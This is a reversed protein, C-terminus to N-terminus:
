KKVAFTKEIIALADKTAIVHGFALTTLVNLDQARIAQVHPINSVARLTMADDAGGHAGTESTTSAAADRRAAKSRCRDSASTRSLKM